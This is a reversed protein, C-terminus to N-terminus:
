VRRRLWNLVESVTTARPAEPQPPRRVVAIRVGAQRAADLRKRAEHGGSNPLVMWDIGLARFREIERGLSNTGLVPLPQWHSPFASDSPWDRARYFVTRGGLDGMEERGRGESDVFLRANEPVARAVDGFGHLFAWDDQPGPLWSPRLFRLYDIGHAGAVDLADESIETAFPSTADLIADIRERRLWEAFPARGGWGGIRTPLGLPEPSSSSRALAALAVVSTEASLASALSVSDTQGALLLLRVTRRGRPMTEDDRLRLEEPVEAAPAPAKPDRTMDEGSTPMGHCVM